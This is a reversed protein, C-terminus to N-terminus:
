KTTGAKASSSGKSEVTAVILIPLATWLVTVTIHEIWRISEVYHVAGLAIQAVHYAPLARALSQMFDPLVQLPFWLGSLVAMPLFLLNALGSAGGRGSYMGIAFGLAAFPIAAVISILLLSAWTTASLDVNGVAGALIMITASSVLTFLLAMAIRGILLIAPKAPSARLLDIWGSSREHAVTVGIGFLGPAMASFVIYTALLYSPAQVGINSSMALGFLLYFGVPLVITPISFSPTRVAKMIETRIVKLLQESVSIRPPRLHNQDPTTM